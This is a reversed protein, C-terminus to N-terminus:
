EYKCEESGANSCVFNELCLCWSWSEKDVFEYQHNYAWLDSMRSDIVTKRKM